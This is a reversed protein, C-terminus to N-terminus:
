IVDPDLEVSYRVQKCALLSQCDLYTFIRIILEDPLKTIDLVLITSM